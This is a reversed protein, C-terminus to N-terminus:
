PSVHSGRYMHMLRCFRLSLGAGGVILFKGSVSAYTSQVVRQLESDPVGIRVLFARVRARTIGLTHSGYRVTRTTLWAAGLRYVRPRPPLVLSFPVVRFVCGPRTGHLLREANVCASMGPCPYPISPLGRERRGM